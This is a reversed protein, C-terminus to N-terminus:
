RDEAAKADAELLHHTTGCIGLKEGLSSSLFGVSSRGLEGNTSVSRRSFAAKIIQDWPVNKISSSEGYLKVAKKPDSAFWYMHSAFDVIGPMPRTPAVVALNMSMHLYQAADEMIRTHDGKTLPSTARSIAFNYGDKFIDWMTSAWYIRGWEHCEGTGSTSLAEEINLDRIAPLGLGHGFDEALDSIFNDGKIGKGKTVDYLAKRQEGYRLSLLIAEADAFGEHFGACPLDYADLFEPRLEDLYGHGLIEHFIIDSSDAAYRVVKDKGTYHMFRAERVMRGDPGLYRTYYANADEGADYIKIPTFYGKYGALIAKVKKNSPNLELLRQWDDYITDAGLRTLAYLNLGRKQASTYNTAIFDGNLDPALGLDQIQFERDQPGRSITHPVAKLVNTDPIIVSADQLTVSVYKPKGSIRPEMRDTRFELIPEVKSAAEVPMAFSGLGLVLAVLSCIKTHSM